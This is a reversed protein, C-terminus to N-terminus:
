KIPGAIDIAAGIPLGSTNAPESGVFQCSPYKMEGASTGNAQSADAWFVHKNHKNIDIGVADDGGSPITCSTAGFGPRTITQLAPGGSQDVQLLGLDGFLDRVGGPFNTNTGGGVVSFSGCVGVNCIGTQMVGAGTTADLDNFFVHNTKDVTIFLGEINNPMPYNHQWAHSALRFTDVSGQQSGDSAFINSVIVTKDATVTVDVPFEPRDGATFTALLSAGGRSFEKTVGEGTSAVFLKGGKVIMGQPNVVNTITNCLTGPFNNTATIKYAQIKNLNFDSIYVITGSAPCTNPQVNATRAVNMNAKLMAIPGVAAPIRGVLSHVHNQTGATMKPAIASGSSCGALLALAAAASLGQVPTPIRM